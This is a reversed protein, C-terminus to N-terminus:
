CAIESNKFIAHAPRDHMEFRSVRGKTQHHHQISRSRSDSKSLLNILGREPKEVRQSRVISNRYDIEVALARFKLKRKRGITAANCVGNADCQLGAFALRREIVRQFIRELFQGTFLRAPALRDD